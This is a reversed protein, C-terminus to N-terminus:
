QTGWSWRCSVMIYKTQLESHMSNVPKYTSIHPINDKEAQPKGSKALSYRVMYSARGARRISDTPTLFNAWTPEYIEQQKLSPKLSNNSLVQACIVCQPQPFDESGTYTFGMTIYNNNYVGVERDIQHKGPAPTQPDQAAEDDSGMSTVAGTSSCCRVLILQPAGTSSCCCWFQHDYWYSRLLKEWLLGPKM